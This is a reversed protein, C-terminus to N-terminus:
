YPQKISAMNKLSVATIISKTNISRIQFLLKPWSGTFPASSKSATLGCVSTCIVALTPARRYFIRSDSKFSRVRGLNSVQYDPYIEKWIEM